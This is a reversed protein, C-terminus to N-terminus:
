IKLQAKLKFKRFMVNTLKKESKRSSKKSKTEEKRKKM